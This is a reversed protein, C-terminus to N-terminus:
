EISTAALALMKDDELRTILHSKRGAGADAIKSLIRDGYSCEAHFEIDLRTVEMLEPYAELAWEIYKVNNVHRNVDLDSRRVDFTKSDDYRSKKDLREKTVPLVHDVSAPALELIEEPIRVPRRSELDIIIWYSIARGLENENEDLMLFDRYARLSDGSSPWTQVTVTDRWKPYRNMEVTLRQLVWTLNREHLQSIDFNLELAHNGATEQLLDCVSQLKVRGSPASESSRIKFQESYFDGKDM